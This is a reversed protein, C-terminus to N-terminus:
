SQGDFAKHPLNHCYQFLYVFWQLYGTPHVGIPVNCPHTLPADPGTPTPYPSNHLYKKNNNRSSTPRSVIYSKKRFNTDISFEKRVIGSQM